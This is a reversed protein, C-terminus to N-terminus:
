IVEYGLERFESDDTRQYITVGNLGLSIMISGEQTITNYVGRLNYNHISDKDDFLGIRALGIPIYGYKVLRYTASKLSNTNAGSMYGCGDTTRVVVYGSIIDDKLGLLLLLPRPQLWTNNNKNKEVIYGVSMILRHQATVMFELLRKSMRTPTTFRIHKKRPIERVVRVTNHLRVGECNKWYKQISRIDRSILTENSLAM